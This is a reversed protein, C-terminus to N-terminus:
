SPKSINTYSTGSPKVVNTYLSENVGDYFINPDDYLVDAQDYQIKGFPNQNTYSTGSPKTINTYTTM